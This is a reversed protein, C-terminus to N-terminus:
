GTFKLNMDQLSRLLRDRHKPNRIHMNVLDDNTLYGLYSISDWGNIIFTNTYESLGLCGLWEQVTDPKKLHAYGADSQHKTKRPTPVPPAMSADRAEASASEPGSSSFSFVASETMKSTGTSGVPTVPAPLMPRQGVELSSQGMYPKGKRPLAGLMPDTSTEFSTLVGQKDTIGFPWPDGSLQSDPPYVQTAVSTTTPPLAPIPAPNTEPYGAGSFGNFPPANVYRGENLKELRPSDVLYLEPDHYETDISVLEYVKKSSRRRPASEPTYIHMKGRIIGTEDGLHTLMYEFPEPQVSYMDKLTVVCEGYSEHDGDRTRIAILIHQEELYDRDGFIPHLEPLSDKTWQPCCLGAIEAYFTKNPNSSIVNPLCNSYFELVFYQSSCTRIEAQVLDFIIRVSTQDVLSERNTIFQSAIGINFSSFVPRHDSSLIDDACGYAINEIFTGPYSRWMVRDCWSPVNIRDGTTKKVKRWNYVLKGKAGREMRYTPLFTIAEERFGVFADKCDQTMKLQDLILLSDIDGEQLKNLVCHINEEVRYNLDGFWFVHHFQNTVDFVNLHKQGLSLGKIIDRYNQNRRALRESRSALHSNIFCISTGNFYMSIAVAGKNGLANAIGTKVSSHEVHSIRHQHEAKTFVVLRIGWLSCVCVIEPDISMSLRLQAKLCNVWDKETLSSEQTGIVYLDHPIVGMVLPERIKGAGQCRVWSNLSETFPATGMNWTGIFISVQDIEEATSHMSKMQCIHQCFNERAHVSEFQYTFTKKGEIVIDLRCNDTSKKILQLIKEHSFTNSADLIDKSPKVAFLRGTQVDVKLTVRGMPKGHKVARVEFIAEPIPQQPVSQLFPATKMMDFDIETYDGHSGQDKIGYNKLFDQAGAQLDELAAKCENFKNSMEEVGFNEAELEKWKQEKPVDSFLDRVLGMKLLFNDFEKVLPKAITWLLKQLGPLKTNGAKMSVLDEDQGEDIYQKLITMFEGETKSLDLRAFNKLFQMRLTSVTNHRASPDAANAEFDDDDSDPEDLKESREVAVIKKMACVLGNKDGRKMYEQVLHSLDVFRPELLSNESQVSLKGDLDPLIRYKHVRGQCLLCLVYAGPVTESERILFSGDEKNQLLRKEAQLRSIGKHLFAM